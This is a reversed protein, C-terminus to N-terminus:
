VRSRGTVCFDVKGGGDSLVIRAGNAECLERTIYLGLGTGRVHTTFFPEFIQERQEGEILPGDNTVM